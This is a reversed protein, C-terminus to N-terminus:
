TLHTEKRGPIGRGGAMNEGDHKGAAVGTHPCNGQEHEEVVGM